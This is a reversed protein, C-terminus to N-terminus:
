QLEGYCSAFQKINQAETDKNTVFSYGEFINEMRYLPGRHTFSIAEGAVERFSRRVKWQSSRPQEGKVSLWDWLCSLAGAGIQENSILSLSIYGYSPSLHPDDGPLALVVGDKPAWIQNSELSNSVQSGQGAHSILDSASRWPHLSPRQQLM